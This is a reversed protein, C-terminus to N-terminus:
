ALTKHVKVNYTLISNQGGYGRFPVKLRVKLPPKSPYFLLSVKLKYALLM